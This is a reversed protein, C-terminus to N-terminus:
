FDDDLTGDDEIEDVEEDEDGYGEIENDDTDNEEEDQDRSGDMDSENESLNDDVEVAMTSTEEDKMCLATIGIDIIDKVPYNSTRPVSFVNGQKEKIYRGLKAFTATMDPPSHRVTHNELCFM